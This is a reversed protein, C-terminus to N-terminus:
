VSAVVSQLCSTLASARGAWARTPPGCPVGDGRGGSAAVPNVPRTVAVAIM